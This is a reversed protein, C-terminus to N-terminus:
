CFWTLRCQSPFWTPGGTANIAQELPGVAVRIKEKNANTAIVFFVGHSYAANKNLQEAVAVGELLPLWHDRVLAAAKKRDINVFDTTMAATTAAVLDFEGYCNAHGPRALGFGLAIEGRYARQDWANSEVGLVRLLVDRGFNMTQIM